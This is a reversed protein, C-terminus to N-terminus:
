HLSSSCRCRHFTWGNKCRTIGRWTPTSCARRCAGQSGDALFTRYYEVLTAEPLLALFHEPSYAARHIRAMEVLDDASAARIRIGYRGEVSNM